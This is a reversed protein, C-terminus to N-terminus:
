GRFKMARGNGPFFPTETPGDRLGALRARDLGCLISQMLEGGRLLHLCGSACSIEDFRRVDDRWQGPGHLVLPSPQGAHIMAGGSPTAHDGTLCILTEGRKILECLLPALGQDLEEIIRVKAAPDHSHAADDPEKFHVHVLDCTELLGLAAEMKQRALRPTDDHHDLLITQAGMAQFVGQYLKHSSVSGAKLGQMEELTLLDRKQGARHTIVANVPGGSLRQHAWALYEMLLQRAAEAKPDAAHEAWVMPELMPMDNLLPDSDSIWPAFDGRLVLVGQGKGTPHLTARGRPSEYEGVLDFLAKQEAPKLDPKRQIIHLGGGEPRCVALRALMPVDGPGCDVGNGKAELWGRGPFQEMTYGMLLFHAIESPLAMGPSAAHWLGCAGDRALRDLAPTDAAQLPTRGDLVPWARDAVGDLLLILCKHPPLTM